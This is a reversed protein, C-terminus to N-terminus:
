VKQTNLKKFNLIYKQTHTICFTANSIILKKYRLNFYFKHPDLHLPQRNYKHFSHIFLKDLNFVVNKVGMHLVVYFCDAPPLNEPKQRRSHKLHKRHPGEDELSRSTELFPNRHQYSQPRDICHHSKGAPLCWLGNCCCRCTPLFDM